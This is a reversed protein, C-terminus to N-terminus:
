NGPRPKSKPAVPQTPSSVSVVVPKQKSGAAPMKVEGVVLDPKVFFLVLM